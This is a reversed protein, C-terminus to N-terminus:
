ELASRGSEGFLKGSQEQTVQHDAQQEAHDLPRLRALDGPTRAIGGGGEQLKMRHGIMRRSATLRVSSQITM